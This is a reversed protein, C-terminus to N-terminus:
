RFILSKKKNNHVSPITKNEMKEYKATLCRRRDRSRVCVGHCKLAQAATWKQM